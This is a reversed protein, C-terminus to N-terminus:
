SFNNGVLSGYWNAGGDITEFVLIDLTNAGTSLTPAVGGAWRTNEPWATITRNGVSDQALYCSFSCAKGATAGTVALSTAGVLTASVINGSSLDITCSGSISGLVNVTEVGGGTSLAVKGVLPINNWKSTTANYGLYHNVAPSAFFM